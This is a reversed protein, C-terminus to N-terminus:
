ILAITNSTGSKPLSRNAMTTGNKQSFRLCVISIKGKVWHVIIIHQYEFFNM